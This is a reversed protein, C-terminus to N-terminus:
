IGPTITYYYISVSCTFYFMRFSNTRSLCSLRKNRSPTQHLTVTTSGCHLVDAALLSWLVEELYLQVQDATWLVAFGNRSAYHLMEKKKVVLVQLRALCVLGHETQIQYFLFPVNPNEYFVRLRLIRLRYRSTSHAPLCEMYGHGDM